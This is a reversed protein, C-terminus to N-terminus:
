DLWQFVLQMYKEKFLEIGESWVSGPDKCSFPIQAGTKKVLNYGSCHGEWKDNLSVGSRRMGDFIIEKQEARAVIYDTEKQIYTDTSYQGRYVVILYWTTNGDKITDNRQVRGPVEVDIRSHKLFESYIPELDKHVTQPEVSKALSAFVFGLLFAAAVIVIVARVIQGPTKLIV